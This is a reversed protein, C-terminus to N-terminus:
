APSKNTKVVAILAKGFYAQGAAPTAGGLHQVYWEVARVPDSVRIHVNDYGVARVDADNPRVLAATAICCIVSFFMRKM